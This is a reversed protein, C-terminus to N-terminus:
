PRPKKRATKSPSESFLAKYSGAFHGLHDFGAETAASSVSLSGVTTSMLRRRVTNLRMNRLYAAPSTGSVSKFSDQLTRRSVRLRSCLEDIRLPSDCRQALAFQQCESVARAAAISAARPAPAQAARALVDRVASMLDRTDRGDPTSLCSALRCRLVELAAAQPHVVTGALARWTNGPARSADLFQSFPEVSFTVSLLEVGAPRQIEFDDGGHLVLVDGFHFERGQVRMGASLANGLLTFCLQGRPLGGQQVVRESMWKRFVHVDGSTWELLASRMRGPSMQSYRQNWGPASAGHIHFDQFVLLDPHM